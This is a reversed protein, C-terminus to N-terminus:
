GNRGGAGGGGDSGVGAGGDDGEGDSGKGDADAGSTGDGTLEGSRHREDLSRYRNYARRALLLGLVVLLAGALREIGAAVLLGGFVVAIVAANVLLVLTWFGRRLEATAASTDPEPVDVSPPSPVEPEPLDPEPDPERYREALGDGDDPQDEELV